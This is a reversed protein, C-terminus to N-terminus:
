TSVASTQPHCYNSVCISGGSRPNDGIGYVRKIPRDSYLQNLRQLAFAYTTLFPKGYQIYELDRGTAEKFLNVLCM